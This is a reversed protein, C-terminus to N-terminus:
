LLQKEMDIGGCSPAFLWPGFLWCICCAGLTVEFCGFPGTKEFGFREYLKRARNGNLVGLTLVKAEKSRRATEEAWQLLMTGLGKGRHGVRVALSEIYCEGEKYDHLMDEVSDRKWHGLTMHIFGVREETAKLVAFAAFPLREPYKEYSEQYEEVSSFASCPFCCCFSKGGVFEKQIEFMDELTENSLTLVEICYESSGGSRGGVARASSGSLAAGAASTSPFSSSLMAQQRPALDRRDDSVGQDESQDESHDQNPKGDGERPIPTESSSM